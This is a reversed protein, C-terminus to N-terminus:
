KEQDASYTSLLEKYEPMIRLLGTHELETLAQLDTFGNKFAEELYFLATGFDEQLSTEQIIKLYYSYDAPDTITKVMWLLLVAEPDEEEQSLVIQDEVLANAFGLLRKGMLQEETLPSKAFTKLKEMQFTWWGLNNYNYTLVDEDLYYAYDDKLLSEKFRYNTNLRQQNKFQKNKRISKRLGKLSDISRHPKYLDMMDKLHREALLFAGSNNLEEFSSLDKKYASSILNEDRAMYKKTMATLSFHLLARGILESSPWQHPGKFVHLQNTFRLTNLSIRADIMDTYNYDENGVIGIYHFRNNSSLVDTNPFAAGCSIAGKIGNILVPALGAMKGGSDFGASYIRNAALPLLKKISSLLRVSVLINDAISLTDSVHNSGALIYGHEEAAARFMSVAQKSRGKMDFILLVPWTRDTNFDSPLFLTYTESVVEMTPISDMIVGKKLTLTQAQLSIVTSIFLFFYRIRSTM